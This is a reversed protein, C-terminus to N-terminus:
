FRHRVGIAISRGRLPSQNKVFSTHAFALQNTLNIGRVYLEIAKTAGVDFRQAFTASLNDYGSTRTEYSAVRDQTFTHSYEVDASTRGGALAYRVGIRGPPIRPLNDKEGTLDAHVYDGFLSIRSRADVRYSLQGDLGMLRVDAPTYALFLHRPETDVLRAFIYNDVAKYFLGIDFEVIGGIKALGLDVSKTTEVINPTPLPLFQGYNSTRALGVEYSNTALNNNDAYLERVGPARQSRALSLRTAYGGQLNVTAGLSASFPKVRSRPYNRAFVQNYRQRDKEVLDPDLADEPEMYETSFPEKVVEMTRWDHRGALELSLRGFSRREALFVGINATRFRSVQESKHADSNNLGSFLGNSYQVGFTGSFGLVPVHTAEVRGDEVNNAYRSFVIPWDLERHAYDTHSLRLRVHDLFPVLRDYDARVDIRDSRLDITAPLADDMGEFPDTIFGHISCHLKIAHTHCAGNSHSHGPLGYNSTQRTFAAGLYGKATIWSAGASYSASEAFSDRLRDSGYRAPVDYDESARRSGEVHIAFAGTGATLRGVLAKEEDGTGFRIETAGALGSAPVTRPIKGDILNIAGNSANGGYRVAAPGRQIEIADLLLPDTGIAHDPSVSAADFVNAGDSLIDIRPLTQGRIVPRSAGGGFNDLHIGPLGALTEGLGGQRRHALEDGGLVTLPLALQGDADPARGTVIVDGPVVDRTEERTVTLLGGAIACTGPIIATGVLLAAAACHTKKVIM